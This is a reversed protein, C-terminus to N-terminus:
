DFQALAEMNREAEDEALVEAMIRKQEEYDGSFAEPEAIVVPSSFNITM